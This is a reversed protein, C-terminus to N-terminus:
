WFLNLNNQCSLFSLRPRANVELEPVSFIAEIGFLLVHWSDEVCCIKCCYSHHIHLASHALVIRVNILVSNTRTNLNSSCILRSNLRRLYVICGTFHGHFNTESNAGSDNRTEKKIERSFGLIRWILSIRTVHSPGCKIRKICLLLALKWFCVLLKNYIHMCAYVRKCVILFFFFIRDISSSYFVQCLGVDITSGHRM